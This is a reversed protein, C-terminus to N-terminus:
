PNQIIRIIKKSTKQHVKDRFPSPSRLDKVLNPEDWNLGIDLTNWLWPPFPLSPFPVRLFLPLHYWTIDLSLDSLDSLHHTSWHLDTTAHEPSRQISRLFLSPRFTWLCPCLHYLFPYLGPVSACLNSRLNSCLNESTKKSTKRTNCTVELCSPLCSHRLFPPWSHFWPRFSLM